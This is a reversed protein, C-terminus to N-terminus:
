GVRSYSEEYSLQIRISKDLGYTITGTNDVVPSNKSTTWSHELAGIVISLLGLDPDPPSSADEDSCADMQAAFFKEVDALTGLPFLDSPSAM